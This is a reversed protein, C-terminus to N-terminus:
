ICNELYWEYDFTDNAEINGWADVNAMLADENYLREENFTMPRVLEGCIETPEENLELTRGSSHFEMSTERTVCYRDHSKHDTYICYYNGKTDIQGAINFDFSSRVKNECPLNGYCNNFEVIM